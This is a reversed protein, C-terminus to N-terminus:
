LVWELALMTNTLRGNSNLWNGLLDYLPTPNIIVFHGQPVYAIVDIAVFSYFGVQHIFPTFTHESASIYRLSVLLLLQM